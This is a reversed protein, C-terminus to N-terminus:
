SASYFFNLPIVSVQSPLLPMSCVWVDRWSAEPIFSVSTSSLQLYGIATNILTLPANPMLSVFMPSEFIGLLFRLAFLGGFNTVCASLLSCSGFGIMM